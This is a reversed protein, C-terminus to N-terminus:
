ALWCLYQVWGRTSATGAIFGHQKTPLQDEAVNAIAQIGPKEDYSLTITRREEEPWVINGEEDFMM